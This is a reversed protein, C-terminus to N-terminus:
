SIKVISNGTLVGFGTGQLVMVSGGAFNVWVMIGVLQIQEYIIQYVGFGMSLM